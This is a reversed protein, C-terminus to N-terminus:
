VVSVRELLHQMHIREEAETMEYQSYMDQKWHCHRCMLLVNRQRQVMLHRCMLLVNRQRQVMVSQKKKEVETHM